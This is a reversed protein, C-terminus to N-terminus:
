KNEVSLSTKTKRKGPKFHYGRYLVRKITERRFHINGEFCNNASDSVRHKMYIYIYKCRTPCVARAERRKFGRSWCMGEHMSFALLAM